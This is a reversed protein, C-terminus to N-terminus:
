RALTVLTCQYQWPLNLLVDDMANWVANTM